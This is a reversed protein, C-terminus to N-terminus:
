CGVLSAQYGSARLSSVIQTGRTRQHDFQVVLLNPKAPAFDASAVGAHSNLSRLIDARRSPETKGAIWVVAICTKAVSPTSRVDLAEAITTQM